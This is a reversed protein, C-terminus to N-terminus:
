TGRVERRYYRGYVLDNVYNACLQEVKNEAATLNEFGFADVV